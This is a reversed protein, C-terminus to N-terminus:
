NSAAPAGQVQKVFQFQSPETGGYTCYFADEKFTLICEDNVYEAAPKEWESFDSDCVDNPRSRERTYSVQLASGSHKWTYESELVKCKGDESFRQYLGTGDAKISEQGDATFACGNSLININYEGVISSPTSTGKTAQIDAKMENVWGRKDFHSLISIDGEFGTLSAAMTEALLCSSPSVANQTMIEPWFKQKADALIVSLKSYNFSEFLIGNSTPKETSMNAVRKAATDGVYAVLHSGKLAVYLPPLNYQQSIATLAPIDVLAPEESLKIAGLQPVAGTLMFWLNKANDSTISVIADLSKIPQKLDDGLQIDQIALGAGKLGYVTSLSLTVIGPDISDLMQQMKAVADCESKQQNMSQKMTKLLSGIKAVDSGLGFGILNDNFQTLYNPIYGQVKKLETSISEALEITFEYNAVMRNDKVDYKDFGIVIRPMLGAMRKYESACSDTQKNQIEKIMEDSTIMEYWVNNDVQLLSDILRENDYVFIGPYSLFQYQQNIHKLLTSDAFNKQPLTLGFIKSKTEDSTKKSILALTADQKVLAVIFSYDTGLPYERYSINQFSAPVHKFQSKSEARDFIAWFADSNEISTKIVPSGGQLYIVQKMEKPLGFYTQFRKSSSVNMLLDNYIHAFFSTTPDMDTTPLQNAYSIQATNFDFMPQISLNGAFLPTDAPVFKLYPNNIDTEKEQCGILTIGALVVLTLLKKM